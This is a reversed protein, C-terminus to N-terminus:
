LHADSQYNGGLGIRRRITGEGMRDSGVRIQCRDIRDSGVDSKEQIQFGFGVLILGFFDSWDM